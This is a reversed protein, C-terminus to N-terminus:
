YFHHTHRGESPRVDLPHVENVAQSSRLTVCVSPVVHMFVCVCECVYLACLACVTGWLRMIYELSASRSEQMDAQKMVLQWWVWKGQGSLVASCSLLDREKKKEERVTVNGDFLTNNVGTSGTPLHNVETLIIDGTRM